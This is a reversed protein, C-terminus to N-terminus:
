GAVGAMLSRPEPGIYEAVPRIMRGDLQEIAHATWGAIRSVAFISTYFGSDIGLEHNVVAAYLDVNPFLGKEREMVTALRDLIRMWEEQPTGAVMEGAMRRLHRSRPDITRYVRHGFGMVRRRAALENRVYTEVREAQGIEQLM